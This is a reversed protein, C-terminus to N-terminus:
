TVRTTGHAGGGPRGRGARAWMGTRVSSKEEFSALDKLLHEAHALSNGVDTFTAIKHAAADLSGKVQFVPPAPPGPGHRTHLYQGFCSPRTRLPALHKEPFPCLSVSESTMGDVPCSDPQHSCRKGELVPFLALVDM